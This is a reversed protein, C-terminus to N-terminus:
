GKAAGEIVAIKILYSLNAFNWNGSYVYGISLKAPLQLSVRVTRVAGPEIPGAGYEVKLKLLGGYRERLAEVFIGLREHGDKAEARYARGIATEVGNVDFVGVAGNEPVEAQTNGKNVLIFEADVKTDPAGQFALMPPEPWLEVLPEVELALPHSKNGIKLVADYRGPPTHRDLRTRVLTLNSVDHYRLTVPV